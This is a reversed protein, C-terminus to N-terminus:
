LRRCLTPTSPAASWPLPATAAWPCPPVGQWGAGGPRDHSRSARLIGRGRGRGCGGAGPQPGDPVHSRGLVGAARGAGRHLPRRRRLQALCLQFPGSPQRVDALPAPRPLQIPHPMCARSASHSCAGGVGFSNLDGLERGLGALRVRARAVRAAADADGEGPRREPARRQWGGAGGDRAGNSPASDGAAAGRAEEAGFAIDDPDLDAFAAQLEAYICRQISQYHEPSSARIQQLIAPTMRRAPPLPPLPPEPCPRTGV